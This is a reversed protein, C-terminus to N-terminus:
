IERAYFMLGNYVWYGGFCCNSPYFPIPGYYKKVLQTLGEVTESKLHRQECCVKDENRTFLGYM